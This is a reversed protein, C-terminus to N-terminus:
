RDIRGDPGQASGRVDRAIPEPMPRPVHDPYNRAM